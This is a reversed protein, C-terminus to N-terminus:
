RQQLRLVVNGGAAEGLGGCCIQGDGADESGAPVALIDHQLRGGTPGWRVASIGTFRAQKCSPEPRSQADCNAASAVKPDLNCIM